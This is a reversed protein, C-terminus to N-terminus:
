LYESVSFNIAGKHHIQDYRNTIVELSSTNAGTLIKVM